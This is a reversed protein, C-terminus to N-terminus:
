TLVALRVAIYNVSVQIQMCWATVQVIAIIHIIIASYYQAQVHVCKIYVAHNQIVVNIVEHICSTIAKIVCYNLTICSCLRM